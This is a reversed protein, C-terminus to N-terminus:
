APRSAEYKAALDKPATLLWSDVILERLEKTDIADLRVMVAAYGNYHDETFFKDPEAECLAFKEHEDSVRVVLVTENPVRGKKPNVRELWSWCFHKGKGKVLVNISFQKGTGEVTDPLALAIRRVDDLSIM